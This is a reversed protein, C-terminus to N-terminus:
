LHTMFQIVNTVVVKSCGQIISQSLRGEKCLFYRCVVGGCVHVCVNRQGGYTYVYMDTALRVNCVDNTLMKTSQCHVETIMFSM